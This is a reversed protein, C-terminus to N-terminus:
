AEENLSIAELKGNEALEEAGETISHCSQVSRVKSQLADSTLDVKEDQIRHKRLWPMLSTVFLLRWTAGATTAFQDGYRLKMMYMIGLRELYPHHHAEAMLM